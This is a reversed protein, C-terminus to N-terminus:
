TTVKEVKQSRLLMREISRLDDEATPYGPKKRDDICLLTINTGERDLYVSGPTLTISDALMIRLAENDLKLEKTTIGWKADTLIMKVMYFADMYIRGVLWLPYMTLKFFNVNRIEEFNLFKAIFHMCLVSMFMGIAANQWSVEEMLIIWVFTLAVTVFITHKGM